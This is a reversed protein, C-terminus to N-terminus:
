IELNSKYVASYIRCFLNEMVNRGQDLNSQVTTTGLTM